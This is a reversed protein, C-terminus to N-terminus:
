EDDPITVLNPQEPETIPDNAEPVPDALPGAAFPSPTEEDTSNGKEDDPDLTESPVSEVPAEPVTTLITIPVLTAHSIDTIVVAQNVTYDLDINYPVYYIGSYNVIYGESPPLNSVLYTFSTGPAFGTLDYIIQYYTEGDQVYSSGAFSTGSSTSSGFSVSNDNIASVYHFLLTAKNTVPDYTESVKEIYNDVVFEYILPVTATVYNATALHTVKIQYRQNRYNDSLGTLVFTGNTTTLNDVVTYGINANGVSLELAFTSLDTTLYNTTAFTLTLSEGLKIEDAITAVIGFQYNRPAITLNINAIALIQETFLERYAL